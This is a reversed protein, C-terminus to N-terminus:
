ADDLVRTASETLGYIDGEFTPKFYGRNACEKMVNRTSQIGIDDDGGFLQDGIAMGNVPWGSEAAKKQVERLFAIIAQRQVAM